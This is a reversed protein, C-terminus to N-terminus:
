IFFRVRYKKQLFTPIPIQEVKELIPAIIDGNTPIKTNKKKKKKSFYIKKLEHFHVSNLILLTFLTESRRKKKPWGHVM